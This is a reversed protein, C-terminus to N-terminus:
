ARPQLLCISSPHHSPELTSCTLFLSMAKVCAIQILAAFPGKSNTDGHSKINFASTYCEEWEVYPKRNSVFECDLGLLGPHSPGNKLFECAMECKEITQCIFYHGQTPRRHFDKQFSDMVDPNLEDIWYGTSRWDTTLMEATVPTTVPMLAM